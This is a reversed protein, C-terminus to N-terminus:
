ATAVEMRTATRGRPVVESILSYRKWDCCTPRWSKVEQRTSRGFTSKSYRKPFRAERQWRTSQNQSIGLDDLKLGDDHGNSKRDGGRLRLSNLLQGAKREARLKVEAARNQADLGMAASQAYKRVAEAKDRILKIDDITIALALARAASDLAVLEESPIASM